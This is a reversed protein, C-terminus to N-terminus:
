ADRESEAARAASRVVHPEIRRQDETGDVPIPSQYSEKIEQVRRSDDPSQQLADGPQSYTLTRGSRMPAVQSRVCVYILALRVTPPFILVACCYGGCCGCGSEPMFVM